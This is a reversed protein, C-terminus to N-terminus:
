KNERVFEIVVIEPVCNFRIPLISNGIGKTVIMKKGNKEILGQSYKNGFASPVVIAGILPLRVQGGHTHGALTLNVDWSVKPFIDPTHSLLITPTETASLAKQIDANGTIMDEIGAIYVTKENINLKASENDLVKIGNQMLANIVEEKGYWNDHNGLTTYFGYKAQMKSLDKAINEIPMTSSHTHGAAFDGVSVIIDPNETNVPEIIRELRKEQNPRIHFDGLFVIKIGNLEKDPLTYRTVVLKNPEIFLSYFILCLLILIFFNILKMVNNCRLFGTFKIPTFTIKYTKQIDTNKTITM